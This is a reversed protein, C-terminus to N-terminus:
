YEANTHKYMAAHISIQIFICSARPQSNYIQSIIICKSDRAEKLNVNSWFVDAGGITMNHM